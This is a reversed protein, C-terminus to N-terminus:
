VPRQGNITVRNMYRKQGPYDNLALHILCRNDWFAVSGDRWRFRCTFEPRHSHNILYDLLPRSEEETMGAFRHTRGINVFLAKRETEPHTIVIPHECEPEEVEDDERLKSGMGVNKTKAVNPSQIRNDHVGKLGALMKKLGDSLSEYAMYQNAFLTDGGVPPIKLAYLISGLPPEPLHTLDQHWIGGVVKTSEPEKRIQFIEPHGEMPEYRPHINLTGFRRGFAKHQDETLNQDRFFVVQHDLFAQKVVNFTEDDLEQSLDVGHVEAGCAGAIPEINIDDSIM